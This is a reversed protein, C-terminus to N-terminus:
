VACHWGGQDCQACAGGGHGWSRRMGPEQPGGGGWAGLLPTPCGRLHGLSGSSSRMPGDKSEWRGLSWAAGVVWGLRALEFIVKQFPPTRPSNGEDMGNLLQDVDLDSEEYRSRHEKWVSGNESRLVVLERDGRGHSAFHPIEVIM